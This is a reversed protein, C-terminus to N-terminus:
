GKWEANPSIVKRRVDPLGKQCHKEVVNCVQMPKKRLLTIKFMRSPPRPLIQSSSWRVSVSDLVAAYNQAAACTSKIQGLLADVTQHFTDNETTTKM